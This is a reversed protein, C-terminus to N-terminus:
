AAGGQNGALRSALALAQERTSIEGNLQADRVAELIEKFRPGPQLGAAILDEGTILAPPDIQERPTNRLFQEYFMASSLDATLALLEARHLGVLEEVDPQAMLRKLRSLPWDQVQALGARQEVLWGTKSSEHNSFRLRDCVDAIADLGRPHSEIGHLLAAAALEFSPRELHRLMHLTKEWITPEGAASQDMVDFLEPLIVRLLGVEHILEVARMRHADTLMRRLEQTIREASVVLMETAMERVADATAEDLRFDLTATFRVARLMRLKDERMRDRPAGIARVIGDNLDREGGVFDLIKQQTPDFFMGNITFDRRRADEEPTAFSVHDPRRGDAYPGETRFTAVEVAAAKKLGQVIIVGFSAGVALTRRHGFLQRVHDPRADTAVDYDKPDRGLLVDRVCGGAWLAEYGAAKLREVVDLAFQRNLDQEAM